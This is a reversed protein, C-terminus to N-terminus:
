EETYVAVTLKVGIKFGFAFTDTLENAHNLETCNIFKELLLKQEDNLKEILNDYAKQERELQKTKKQPNEVPRINGLYLESIINEM